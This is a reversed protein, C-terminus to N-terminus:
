SVHSAIHRAGSLKVVCPPVHSKFFARRRIQLTFFLVREAVNIEIHLAEFFTLM